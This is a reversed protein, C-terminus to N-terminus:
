LIGIINGLRTIDSLTYDRKTTGTLALVFTGSGATLLTALDDERVGFHMRPGADPCKLRARLDKVTVDAHWPHFVSPPQVYRELGHKIILDRGMLMFTNWGSTKITTKSERSADIKQSVMHEMMQVASQYFESIFECQAPVKIVGINFRDRGHDMGQEVLRPFDFNRRVAFISSRKNPITQFCFRRKYLHLPKLCITDADLWWGGYKELAKLRVIDSLHEVQAGGAMWRDATARPVLEAANKFVVNPVAVPFKQFTWLWVTHFRATSQLSLVVYCPLVSEANQKFHWFQHVHM